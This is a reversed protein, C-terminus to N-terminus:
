EKTIFAMCPDNAGRGLLVSSVFKYNEESFVVPNDAAVNKSGAMWAGEGNRVFEYAACAGNDKPVTIIDSSIGNQILSVLDVTNQDETVLMTYGEGSGKSVIFMDPVKIQAGGMDGHIGSLYYHGQQKKLHIFFNGEGGIDEYAAKELEISLDYDYSSLQNMLYEAKSKQAFNELVDEHVFIEVFREILAFISKQGSLDRDQFGSLKISGSVQKPNRLLDINIDFNILATSGEPKLDGRINMIGQAVASMVLQGKLALDRSSVVVNDVLAFKNHQSKVEGALSLDAVHLEIATDGDLRYKYVGGSGSVNVGLAANWNYPGFLGEGKLFSINKSVDHDIYIKDAVSDRQFFMGKKVRFDEILFSKFKASSMMMDFFSMKTHMKGISIIENTSEPYPLIKLGEFSISFSPFFSMNHLKEIKAPRNGFSRSAFSEIGERLMDSSGGMNAMITFIVLFFALIFFILKGLFSFWNKDNKLRYDELVEESAQVSESKEIQKNNKKGKAM